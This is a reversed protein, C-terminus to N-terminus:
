AYGRIELHKQWSWVKLFFEKTALYGRRYLEDKDDNTLKFDTATVNVGDLNIDITRIFDPNARRSALSDHATMMTKFIAGLVQKVDTVPLKGTEGEEILRFGFTPWRPPNPSDAPVDYIWIPFNSLLGGDVIVDHQLDGASPYDYPAFFFPISMSMRVADAVPFGAQQEVPLDDPLVLLRRSSLDSAVVKLRREPDPSTIDAFTTVHSRSLQDAIWNRFPMTSYVGLQGAVLLNGMMWYPSSLDQSPDLDIILHSTKETLFSTYDLGAFVAELHDSDLGAALLSATIAGASTGATKMWRLGVDGCCRIAGLFATGLVGGGEFISDARYEDPGPGTPLKTRITRVEDSTLRLGPVQLVRGPDWRAM